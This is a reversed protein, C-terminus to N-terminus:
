FWITVGVAGGGVLSLTEETIEVVETIPLVRRKRSISGLTSLGSRPLVVLRANCLSGFTM